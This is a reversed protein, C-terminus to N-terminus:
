ALWRGLGQDLSNQFLLRYGGANPHVGDNVPIGLLRTEFAKAPSPKSPDGGPFPDYAPPGGPKPVKGAPYGEAPDGYANQFLGLNHVYLCRDKRKEAVGRTAKALEVICRNHDAQTLGHFNLKYFNLMGDLRIYDFGCIAVKLAPRVGLIADVVAGIDKAIGAFMGAFEEKPMEALNRKLAVAHLDNPGLTMHVVDVTPRKELAKLLVGKRPGAWEAARTGGIATERAGAVGIGKRPSEDLHTQIPNGALPEVMGASWSDGVALIREIRRASTERAHLLRPGALLLGGTATLLDRRTLGRPPM